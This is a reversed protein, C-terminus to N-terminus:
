NLDDNTTVVGSIEPLDFLFELMEVDEKSVKAVASSSHDETWNIVSGQDADAAGVAEYEFGDISVDTQTHREGSDLESSMLDDSSSSHTDIGLSHGMEHMVATLLDMGDITDGKESEADDSPTDDIYWGHGAADADILIRGDPLVMGLTTGSLDAIIFDDTSLQMVDRDLGLMMMWRNSGEDIMASLSEADLLQDASVAGNGMSSAVLEEADEIYAPDDGRLTTNDFTAAGDEVFLGVDGDNLLSYYVFGTVAKGDLEVSVSGGSLHIFLDHGSNGTLKVDTTVDIDIGRDTVHGIIIQEADPDIAVFKYNEENYYDFVMGSLQDSDVHSEFEIMTYNAVDVGRTAIAFGSAISATLESGSVFWSGNVPVLDGMDFDFNEAFEFTIVPPLKQIQWDDFSAKAGEVGLGLMGDNLPNEFNFSTANTGNVYVTAVTGHMVLTLDYDTSAKLRMNNQTDVVWGDLTRHGIQIKDLGVDVGAFKFNDVDQYDFIIYGNSKWGAKDKEANVTALVEMYNPQMEDLFFLSVAEDGLAAAEVTYSGDEIAWLGSEVAFALANPNGGGGGGGGGGPGDYEGAFLERRMIERAGQLNGAQPDNPAGTQENWDRDEQLVMGLEGFPEFNRLADPDYTRTDDFKHELYLGGDPLTPDAGDSESLDYLYDQLHPQLNRSIHFAGFPSFPVIYSNFEGVWGIARDAGTNLIMVDRGAGDYAIDSYSQYADPDDNLGGNTDHDDDMNLMDDGRGGFMHDRGTGGVIWDNGLDGFLKDDGDTYLTVLEDPDPFLTDEPGETADFNLLFDIEDGSLDEIAVREGTAPDVLIKERPEYSDYLAFEDAFEGDGGRGEYRLIEGPNYLAYDYWFPDDQVSVGSVNDANQIQKLVDNVSDFPAADGDGSYYFPLAEAGSVADDGDGAHMSDKGWGGFMIDNFLQDAATTATRFALLDVTYKLVGDMNITARQLQGPTSIDLDVDELKEIGYLPESLEDDNNNAKETNRSTLLLGDDGLMGDEGAGGFLVDNGIEGHMADNEANGFLVDDGVMGHMFDDGGEGFMLDGKGISTSSFLMSFEGTSNDFAPAYGYDRLLVPRAIVPRDIKEDYNFELYEGTDSDVLRYIEGNDGIIVDSDEGNAMAPDDANRALRDPDGAAGYILDAGDPRKEPTDFGFLASSGGILDDQGLNGYIRDNGGNGEVYDDGDTATEEVRFTLDFNTVEDTNFARYDPTPLDFSPDASMLPSYAGAGGDLEIRGDGQMIDDGLQGFMEDDGQNGVMVDNGFVHPTAPSAVAATEIALSHDLLTITRGADHDPNAYQTATVNPVFESDVMLFGAPQGVLVGLDVQMTQYMLGDANLARFRPSVSDDQRIIIANDGTMVDEGAGGDMVDNLDDNDSPDMDALMGTLDYDSVALADQEDIGGEVNHGGIMDDDETGGFMVDDGQQGLMIDDNGNGFMLDDGGDDAFATDIAFFYNNYFLTGPAATAGLTPYLKGHDGFLLDQGDAGDDGAGGGLAGGDGSDGWIQDGDTGGLIVDSNGNGFIIDAGGDNPATTMIRDLTLSNPVLGDLDFSGAGIDSRGAVTDDVLRWDIRGNDGLIIDDGAAGSVLVTLLPEPAEGYLRDGFAGGMIIDADDNGQIVDSGGMDTNITELYDVAGDGGNDFVLQGHDGILVDRLADANNVPGLPGAGNRYADGYIDDGDTGGFVIDSGRNGYIEDGATGGLAPLKTTIKTYERLAANTEDYTVIGEDGLIVDNFFGVANVFNSSQGEGMLLDDDVGGLIVDEGANGEITDAGGDTEATDTSEVRDLIGLVKIVEGHDGILIDGGPMTEVADVPLVKDLNDGMMFDSGTGGFGIDEGRGGFLSDGTGLTVDFTEIKDATTSDTDGNDRFFVRGEDGLMIDEFSGGAGIHSLSAAEGFIMDGAVGGILVDNGDNGEITDAGGDGNAIDSSTISERLALGGVTVYNLTGQDGILLDNGPSAELADFVGSGEMAEDNDGIIIDAGTGGFGVDHGANGYIEDSGGLSFESTFIKDRVPDPGSTFRVVGEDGLIIDDEGNGALRDTGGDSVGGIIVDDKQNGAVWDGGGQNNATDTAEVTRILGDRLVVQGQDGVIVDAGADVDSVADVDSPDDLDFIDDGYVRDAGGGALIIDEGQGGSITDNEGIYPSISTAVIDLTYIDDDGTFTAEGDTYLTESSPKIFSLNGDDGVIVDDGVGGTIRDEGVGGFIIDNGGGGDVRDDGYDGLAPVAAAVTTIESVTAALVSTDIVRNLTGFDAVIVDDSQAEGAVDGNITDNDTGGFIIDAGLNGEINDAGGNGPDTTASETMLSIGVASDYTFDAQGHDGFILEAGGEGDVTDDDLGGFIYDDDIGGLIHDQGGVTPNITRLRKPDFTLADYTDGGVGDNLIADGSVFVTIEGDDGFLVDRGAAGRLSDDGDNGLIFDTSSGGFGWDNGGNGFIVDSGREGFLSDNGDVIAAGIEDTSLGALFRDDDDGLDDRLDGRLVDNGDEGWIADNGSGGSIVDAGATNYATLIRPPLSQDIVTDGSAADVFTLNEFAAVTVGDGEAEFLSDGWIWDDAGDGSIWDEGGGGAIYDGGAATGSAAMDPLGGTKFILCDADFTFELDGWIQDDDLGGILMDSGGGGSILDAGERGWITDDDAEGSLVDDGLDGDITDDGDGGLVTDDGVGAFILDAGGNGKIKDDGSGGSMVDAGDGGELSDAGSNGDITDDGDGGILTDEGEGGALDGAIDVGAMVIADDFLGARGLINDYKTASGFNQAAVASGNIVASVYVDGGAVTVTFAEETDFNEGHIRNEAYEGMNLRLTGDEMDEALLPTPECEITLDLIPLSPGFQWEKRWAGFLAEVFVFLHAEIFVSYDFICLPNHDNGEINALIESFRVKFDENPDHLDIAFTGFIGGGVGASAIGISIALAATIQGQLTIEPTDVGPNEFSDDLIFFGEILDLPNRFDGDAFARIGATDYAFDFDFTASFGGGVEVGIPGWISFFQHYDFGFVLEPFDMGILTVDRGFLLGIIQTPDDLFPFVLGGGNSSDSFVDFAGSTGTAAVTALEAVIDFSGLFSTLEDFDPLGALIDSFVMTPDSFLDGVAADTLDLSDVGDGGLSFDSGTLYFIIDGDSGDLDLNDLTVLLDVIFKVADVFSADVYGFLAAIDLLSVEGNLDSIVPIPDILPELIPLIPSIYEQVSEVIPGLVDSLFEGLNLGLNEFNIEPSAPMSASINDGFGWAMGFDAVLSPFARSLEPDGANIGLELGLDIDVGAGFSIDFSSDPIEPFTLRGDLNADIIDFSFNADLDKHNPDADLNENFLSAQLFGLTLSAGQPLTVFLDLAIEDEAPDVVLFFGDELDVGMGLFLNWDFGVTLEDDVKLGFAPIAFDVDGVGEEYHGGLDLAIQFGHALPDTLLDELSTISAGDGIGTFTDGLEGVVDGAENFFEFVIDGADFVGDILSGLTGFILDQFDTFIDALFEPTEDILNILPSVLDNRLDDFFESVSGLADGIFPMDSVGDIGFLEGSFLDGVTGLVLDIGEAFMQITDLLGLDDLFDLGLVAEFNPLQVNTFDIGAPDLNDLFADFKLNGLFTSSGGFQVFTPLVTGFGFDLDFLNQTDIEGFMNDFDFLDILAFRDDAAGLDPLSFEFSMPTLDGPTGTGNLTLAGGDILAALPGLAGVFSVESANALGSISIGSEDTNIFVNTPNEPEVGFSIGFDASFNAALNAAGSLNAVDEFAAPLGLETLDFNIPLSGGFARTFNIDFGLVGPSNVEYTLSILGGTVQELAASITETLEQIVAIDEDIMENLVDIFGEVFGLAEGLDIGVFPLPDGLFDMEMLGILFDRVDEFTDLINDYTFSSFPALQELDTLVPSIIAAPDFATIDAVSIGVTPTGALTDLYDQLDDLVGGAGTISPAGFEVSASGSVGLGAGISEILSGLGPDSEDLLKGSAAEFLTDYSLGIFSGFTETAALSGSVAAAIDGSVSGFELGLFGLNASATGAATASVDADFEVESVFANNEPQVRASTGSEFGTSTEETSSLETVRISTVDGDVASLTLRGGLLGAIVDGSVDSPTIGDLETATAFAADFSDVLDSLSTNGVTSVSVLVATVVGTNNTLEMQFTTPEDALVGSTLPGELSSTLTGTNSFLEDGAVFDISISDFPEFAALIEIRGSGDLSIDFTQDLTLGAEVEVLQMADRIDRLLDERDENGDTNTKLVEVSHTAGPSLTVEFTSNESLQGNAPLVVPTHSFDFNRNAVLQVLSSVTDNRLGLEDAAVGGDTVADISLSHGVGDNLEIKFGAVGTGDTFSLVSVVNSGFESDIEADIDALLDDISTNTGDQAVSMSHTVGDITLDFTAAGSLIGNMPMPSSTARQLDEFGLLDFDGFDAAAIEQKEIQLFSVGLARVILRESEPDIDVIVNPADAASVLDDLVAQAIAADIATQLDALLDARSANGSTDAADVDVSIGPLGGVNIRFKINQALQGNAPVPNSGAANYLGVLALAADASAIAIEVPDALDVGLTLLLGLDSTLSFGGTAGIEAFTGFDFNFDFDKSFMVENEFALDFAIIDDTFSFGTVLSSMESLGLLEQLTSFEPVNISDVVSYLNGVLDNVPEDFALINLDTDTEGLLSTSGMFPLDYAFLDANEQFVTLFNSFQDIITIMGSSTMNRFPTLDSFDILEVFPGTRPDPNDVDFESQLLPDFPNGSLQIQASLVGLATELDILEPDTFTNNDLDFDVQVDLLVDIAGGLEYSTDDTEYGVTNIEGISIKDDLDPDGMTAIAGAELDFTGDAIINLFGIKLDFPDLTAASVSAGAIVQAGDVDLYLDGESVTILLSDDDTDADILTDIEDLALTLGMVAEFSFGTSVEVEPFGGAGAVNVDYFLGVLDANRGLDFSFTDQRALSLGLDFTVEYDGDGSDTNPDINLNSAHVDVHYTVEGTNVSADDSTFSVSIGDLDTILDDLSANGIDAISAAISAEVGSRIADVIEIGAAGGFDHFDLSAVDVAGAAVSGDFDADSALQASIDTLEDLKVAEHDNGSIGDDSVEVFDNDTERDLLGPLDISFDTGLDLEGEILHLADFIDTFGSDFAVRMGDTLDHDTIFDSIFSGLLLDAAFLMRPELQEVSFANTKKHSPTGKLINHTRVYNFKLRDGFFKNQALHSRVPHYGM